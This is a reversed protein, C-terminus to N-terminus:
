RLRECTALAIVPVFQFPRAEQTSPVPEGTSGHDRVDAIERMWWSLHAELAAVRSATAPSRTRRSTGSAGSMRERPARAFRPVTEDLCQAVSMTPEVFEQDIGGLGDFDSATRSPLLSREIRIVSDRANM